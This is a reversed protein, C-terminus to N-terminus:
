MSACVQAYNDNSTIVPPMIDISHTSSHCCTDLRKASTNHMHSNTHGLGLM